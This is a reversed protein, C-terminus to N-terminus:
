AAPAYLANASAYCYEETPQGTRPERAVFDRIRQRATDPTQEIEVDTLTLVHAYGLAALVRYRKGDREPDHWYGAGPEIVLDTGGPGRGPIVVDLRWYTVPQERDVWAPNYPVAFEDLLDVPVAVLRQYEGRVGDNQLAAIVFAELSTPHDRYYAALITALKRPGQSRLTAQAGRKGRRQQLERIAAQRAAQAVAPEADHPSPRLGARVLGGLRRKEVPIRCGRRKTTVPSGATVTDETPAVIEIAERM